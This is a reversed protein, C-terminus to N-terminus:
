LLSISQRSVENFKKSVQALRAVDELELYSMIHILILRPLRPLYDINGRALNKVYELMEKGFARHIEGSVSVLSFTLLSCLILCM